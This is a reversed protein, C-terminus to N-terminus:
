RGGGCRGGCRECGFLGELDDGGEAPEPEPAPLQLRAPPAAVKAPAQQVGGGSPRLAGQAIKVMAGAVKQAGDAVKGDQVEGVLFLGPRLPLIVARMGVKARVQLSPSLTLPKAWEAKPANGPAVKAAPDATRRQFRKRRAGGAFGRAKRRRRYEKMSIAKRM